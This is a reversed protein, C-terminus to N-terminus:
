KNRFSIAMGDGEEYIVTSYERNVYELYERLRVVITRYRHPPYEVSKVLGKFLVNDAVIVAKESLIKEIKKLHNLYQGKPGDLYVFDYNGSLESIVKDADGSICNIRETMNADEIAKKAREFRKTDKEVTDIIADDNATAMLLASFGIATGIELIRKPKNEYVTKFLLQRESERIIPINYTEAEFELEKMVKSVFKDM